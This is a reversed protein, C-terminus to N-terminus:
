APASRPGDSSGEDEFWRVFSKCLLVGFSIASRRSHEPLGFGLVAYGPVM